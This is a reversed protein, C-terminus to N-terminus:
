SRARITHAVDTLIDVTNRSRGRLERGLNLIATLDSMHLHGFRLESWEARSLYAWLEGFVWEIEEIEASTIQSWENKLGHRLRQMSREVATAKRLQFARIGIDENTLSRRDYTM